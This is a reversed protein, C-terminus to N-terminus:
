NMVDVFLLVDVCVSPYFLRPNLYEDLFGVGCPTGMQRIVAHLPIATKKGNLPVIEISSVIGDKSDLRIQIEKFNASAVSVQENLDVVKLDQVKLTAIADK